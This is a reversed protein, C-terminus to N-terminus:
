QVFPLTAYTQLDLQTELIKLVHQLPHKLTCGQMDFETSKQHMELADGFSKWMSQHMTYQVGCTVCGWVVGQMQAEAHAVGVQKNTQKNTQKGKDGTWMNSTQKNTEGEPNNRNISPCHVLALDLQVWLILLPRPLLNLLLRRRLEEGPAVWGTSYDILTKIVIRRRASTPIM